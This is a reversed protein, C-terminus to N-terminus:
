DLGIYVTTLSDYLVYIGIQETSAGESKVVKGPPLAAPTPLTSVAEMGTVDVTSEENEEEQM